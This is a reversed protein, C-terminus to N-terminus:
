KGGSDDVVIFRHRQKETLPVVRKMIIEDFNTVKSDLKFIIIIPNRIYSAALLGVMNEKGILIIQCM